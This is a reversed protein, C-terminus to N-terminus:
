ISIRSCCNDSKLLSIFVTDNGNAERTKWHHSNSHNNGVIHQYSHKQFRVQRLWSPECFIYTKKVSIHKFRTESVLYWHPIACHCWSVRTYQAWPLCRVVLLHRQTARECLFFFTQTNRRSKLMRLLLQRALKEPNSVQFTCWNRDTSFASFICAPRLRRWPAVVASM